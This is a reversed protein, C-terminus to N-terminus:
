DIWLRLSLVVDSILVIVHYGPATVFCCRSSGPYLERYIGICMYGKDAMYSYLKGYFNGAFSAYTLSNIPLEVLTGCISHEGLLSDLLNTIGHSQFVVTTLSDFM